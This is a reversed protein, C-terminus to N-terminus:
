HATGSFIWVGRGVSSIPIEQPIPPEPLDFLIFFHIFSEQSKWLPLSTNSFIGETPSTHLNEPVVCHRGACDHTYMKKM